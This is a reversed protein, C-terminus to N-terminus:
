RHRLADVPVVHAARLAPLLSVLVAAGFVVSAPLWLTRANLEGYMHSFLVGGVEVGVSMPIGVAALWANLGASLAAGPVLSLGALFATELLILGFVTRPRTGLARLVGFERTRELITMLVTNLVGIAVIVIIVLLSVWMGEVDARMARYFEAEVVQWPSVDLDRDALRTQLDAASARAEDVDHLVVALEHVRGPLVLFEQATGLPLYATRSSRVQGSAGTIGVVPFLDNAISGDAGQGILVVEDGVDAGLLDAISHGLIVAHEDPGSFFRGRSVKRPLRTTAAEPAPDVGMLRVGTTKAGRFALAPAYVRPAWGSVRDDGDLVDGIAAVEDLTAYLSPRDLYGARHIQLHGTHDRTFIDILHGYSGDSISISVSSLCFGGVMMLATLLSRRRQRFVNRFALRFLM